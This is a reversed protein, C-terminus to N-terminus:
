DLGELLGLKKLQRKAGKVNGRAREQEAFRQLKERISQVGSRAEQNGPDIQLVKRYAHLANDFRPAVLRDAKRHTEALSLLLRVETAAFRREEDASGEDAPTSGASFRGKTPSLSKPSLLRGSDDSTENAPMGSTRRAREDLGKAENRVEGDRVSLAAVDAVELSEARVLQDSSLPPRVVDAIEMQDPGISMQDPGVPQALIPAPLNSIPSAPMADMILVKRPRVPAASAPSIHVVEVVVDLKPQELLASSLKPPVTMSGVNMTQAPSLADDQNAIRSLSGNRDDVVLLPDTGTGPATEPILAKREDLGLLGLGVASVLVVVATAHVWYPRRPLRVSAPNPAEIGVPFSQDERDKSEFGGAAAEPAVVADQDLQQTAGLLPDSDRTSEVSRIPGSRVRSEAKPDEVLLMASAAQEVSEASIEADGAEEALFLALNLLALVRGPNGESYHLLSDLVEPSLLDFRRCGVARMRHHILPAIESAPFPTLPYHACLSEIGRAVSWAKIRDELVPHGSLLISPPKETVSPSVALDVLFDFVEDTLAQAEDFLLVWRRESASSLLQRRCVTAPDSAEGGGRKDLGACAAALSEISTVPMPFVAVRLLSRRLRDALRALLMSKGLGPAATLLSVGDSYPVSGLLQEFLAQHNSAPYVFREDFVGRFPNECCGFKKWNM